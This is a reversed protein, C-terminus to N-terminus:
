TNSSRRGNATTQLCAGHSKPGGSPSDCAKRLVLAADFTTSTLALQVPARRTLTFEYVRDAGSVGTEGGVCSSSFRDGAGTTTAAVTRGDTLTPASACASRQGTLDHLSWALNFKGFADPLPVM